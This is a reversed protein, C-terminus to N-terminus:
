SALIEEIDDLIDDKVPDSQGLDLQRALLEAYDAKLKENEEELERIRTHALPQVAPWAYLSRKGEKLSSIEGQALQLKEKMASLDNVLQEKETIAKQTRIIEDELFKRREELAMSTVRQTQALTTVLRDLIDHLSEYLERNVYPNRKPPPIDPAKKYKIIKQAPASHGNSELFNGFDTCFADVVKNLRTFVGMVDPDDTINLKGIDSQTKSNLVSLSPSPLGNFKMLAGDVNFVASCKPCCIAKDKSVMEKGKLVVQLGNGAM